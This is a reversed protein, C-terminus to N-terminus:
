WLTYILVNGGEFLKPFGGNAGARVWARDGFRAEIRMRLFTFTAEEVVDYLPDEDVVSWKDHVVGLVASARDGARVRADLQLSSESEKREGARLTGSGEEPRLVHDGRGELHLRGIRLVAYAGGRLANEELSGEATSSEREIRSLTASGWSGATWPGLRIEVLAGAYTTDETQLFSAIPPVDVRATHSFVRAIRVEGSVPGATADARVRAALKPSGRQDVVVGVTNEDHRSRILYFLYDSFADLDAIGARLKVRRAPSHWAVGAEVDTEPKYFQPLVEFYAVHADGLEQQLSVTWRDRESEMTAERLYRFQLRTHATLRSTKRLEVWTLLSMPHFSGTWLRIGDGENEEWIADDVLLGAHARELMRYKANQACEPRLPLLVGDWRRFERTSPVEAEWARARVEADCGVPRMNGQRDTVRAWTAEEWPGLTFGRQAPVKRQQAWAPSPLFLLVLLGVARSRFHM